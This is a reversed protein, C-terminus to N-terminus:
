QVVMTGIGKKTFIELLLTHPKRGDIIHVNQVGHQLAYLCSEVKPIMGGKIVGSAIYARVEGATLQSAMSEPGEGLYIGEVDTLLFLKHAQLAGGLAGAVHDANINLSEGQPGIGIPSVVPIYGSDTMTHILEPNVQTIEGVLGLSAWSELGKEDKILTKKYTAQILNGDKGCIGIAKGGLENIRGVISKNIRGNLVMEAVELTAEDTVRLGNVFNPQLGVKKMWVDISPGGGHVIVPKMGVLKMLIIDQLVTREMEANTMAHGGLKIVITKGAFQQIYPLAEVLIGAKETASLM